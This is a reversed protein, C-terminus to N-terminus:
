VPFKDWARDFAGSLGKKKQSGGNGQSPTTRPTVASRLRDADRTQELKAMRKTAERTVLEDRLEADSLVAVHYVAELRERNNMGRYPEPDARLIEAMRDAVRELHPFRPQGAEDTESVFSTLSGEVDAHLAERQQIGREAEGQELRAIKELLPQIFPALQQAQSPLQQGNPDQGQLFIRPDIGRHRMLGAIYNVPDRDYQAQLHFLRGVADAENLGNRQMQMRLEPTISQNITERMKRADSLEAFKKGYSAETFKSQELWAEQAARPLTSFVEKHKDPWHKLAELPPLELSPQETPKLQDTVPKQGKDAGIQTEDGNAALSTGQGEDRDDGGTGNFADWAKDFNAGYESPQSAPASAPTSTEASGSNSGTAPAVAGSTGANALETM